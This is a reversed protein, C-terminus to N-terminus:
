CGYYIVGYKVRVNDPGYSRRMLELEEAFVKEFDEIGTNITNADIAVVEDEGESLSHTNAVQPLNSMWIHIGRNHYNSRLTEGPSLALRGDDIGVHDPKVEVTTVDVLVSGVKSGCLSCFNGSVAISAYRCTPKTCAKINVTETILKSRCEAYPGIRVSYYVGM